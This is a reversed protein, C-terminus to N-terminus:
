QRERGRDTVVAKRERDRENETDTEKGRGNEKVYLVTIEWTGSMNGEAPVGGGFITIQFRSSCSDSGNLPSGARAYRSSSFERTM